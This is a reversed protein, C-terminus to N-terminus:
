EGDVNGRSWHREPRNHAVSADFDSNEPYFVRDVGPKREGISLVVCDEVGRNFLTHAIGTGAPFSAVHGARLELEYPESGPEILRLMCEGQLVYVLEEEESHAHMM